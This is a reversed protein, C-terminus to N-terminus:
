PNNRVGPTEQKKVAPLFGAKRKRIQKFLSTNYTKARLSVLETEIHTSNQIVFAGLLSPIGLNIIWLTLVALVAGGPHATFIGFVFGAVSGRVGIELVSSLPLFTMILYILGIGIFDESIGTSNDFIGLLLVFQSTFVLYRMLSLTIVHIMKKSSQEALHNMLSEKKRLWSIRLLWRSILPLNFVIFFLISLLLLSIVLFLLFNNIAHDSYLIMLSVGSIIGFLVTVSTQTFSGVIFSTLGNLQNKPKILVIRGGVEGLRKPTLLGATIGVLISKFSQNFTIKEFDKVLFKWKVAEITWNLLMLLLILGVVSLNQPQFIELVKGGTDLYFQRVKYFVVAFSVIVILAKIINGLWNRSM